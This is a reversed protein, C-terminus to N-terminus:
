EPLDSASGDIYNRAPPHAIEASLKTDTEHALVIQRAEQVLNAVNVSVTTTVEVPKDGFEDRYVKALKWAIAKWDTDGAQDIRALQREIDLGQARNVAYVLRMYRWETHPIQGTAQETEIARRGRDMWKSITSEHVGAAKGAPLVPMGGQVKQVISTHVDDSLLSKRGIVEDDAHMVLREMLDLDQIITPRSVGLEKAIDRQSHGEQKLKWAQARRKHLQEKSPARAM